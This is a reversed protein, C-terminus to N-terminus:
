PGHYVEFVGLCMYVFVNKDLRGLLAESNARTDRASPYASLLRLGSQTFRFGPCAEGRM